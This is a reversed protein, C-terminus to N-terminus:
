KRTEGHLALVIRNESCKGKLNQQDQKKKQLPPYFCAGELCNRKMGSLLQSSPFAQEMPQGKSGSRQKARSASHKALSLTLPRHQSHNAGPLGGARGEWCIIRLNSYHHLCPACHVLGSDLAMQASPFGRHCCHLAHLNEIHLPSCSSCAGVPWRLAFQELCQQM